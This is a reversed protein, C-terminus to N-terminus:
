SSLDDSPDESIATRGNVDETGNEKVTVYVIKIIPEYQVGAFSARVQDGLDWDLGYLSRPQGRGGPMNLLKANLVEAPKNMDLAARIESDLINDDDGLNTRRFQEARNWKSKTMRNLDGRGRRGGRDKAYIYNREGFNNVEVFPSVMNGNEVSFLLATDRIDSGRLDIFTQFQFSGSGIPVIDFHVVPNVQVTIAHIENFLDLLNRDMFSMDIAPGSSVDPQVSFQGNLELNRSPDAASAGMNERVLRKMADDAFETVAEAGDERDLPVIRRNLLDVPATGRMEYVIANDEQRQYIKKSRLFFTADLRMASSESPARWIELRQDVQYIDGIEDFPIGIQCTGTHNIMRSYNLFFFRRINRIRAGDQTSLWIEYRSAM